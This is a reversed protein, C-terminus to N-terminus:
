SNLRECKLVFHLPGDREDDAFLHTRKQCWELFKQSYVAKSGAVTEEIAIIDPRYKDILKKIEGFVQYAWLVFNAPYSGEPQHIQPLTGYDELVLSSDSSVMSAWGTKSSLDITLICESKM